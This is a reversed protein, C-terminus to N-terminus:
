KTLKRFCWELPGVKFRKMWIWSFWIAFLCFIGAAGLSLLVSQPANLYGMEELTGMGLLVHLVYLTLAMQGTSALVEVLPGHFRETLEVCLMAVGIALAGAAVIYQPLPPIVSTTVVENIETVTMEWEPATLLYGHFGKVLLETIAWIVFGALMLKRRRAPDDFRQRGLWLGILLFASWPIVPHFGNFFLHRFMGDVTWLGHYTLTEWNWGIDYDFLFLLLPFLLTILACMRLLNRDSLTFVAAAVIFYIGYFHLIDAPWVPTYVLGFFFLLVGRKVINWRVSSISVHDGSEVAKRTLFALGVGALVVFLAAARGELISSFALAWEPGTDANLVVKFNVIVM